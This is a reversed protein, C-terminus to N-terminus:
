KGGGGRKQRGRKGMKGDGKRAAVKKVKRGKVGLKALSGSAM